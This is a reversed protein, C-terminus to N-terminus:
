RNQPQPDSYGGNRDYLGHAECYKRRHKASTFIPDGDPTYETQVGKEKDFKRFKPIEDPCIGAAYSTMPWTGAFHPVGQEARFDRQMVLGDKDCLEPLNCDAPPRAVEKTKGCAPCKFCYIPM